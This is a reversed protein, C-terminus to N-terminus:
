WGESGRALRHGPAGDHQIIFVPAGAARAQRQLVAIRDVTQQLAQDILAQRNARATHYVIALRVDIFLLEILIILKLSLKPGDLRSKARRRWM